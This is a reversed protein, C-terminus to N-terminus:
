NRMAPATLPIGSSMYTEYLQLNNYAETGHKLPKARVQKNCTMYRWHITELRAWKLRQAPWGVPHGLGASFPQGGGFNKGALHVHCNACAFNLQGRKGWWFQKGKEYAAKAGAASLNISVRQGKSLSYFYATLEALKVRAKKDKSLNAKIFPLDSGNRSACEIIDMEATIVKNKKRSWYPYRQAINKGGNKFCSAFTKGNNFPTNWLAEGRGLGIEYPPFDNYSNWQERWAKFSPLAYLGNAYEDFPVNPFTKKFYAQFKALDSKPDAQVTVSLGTILGLAVLVLVIKKM